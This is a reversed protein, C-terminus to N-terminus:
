KTKSKTKARRSVVKSRSKKSKETKENLKDEEELEDLSHLILAEPDIHDLKQATIMDFQDSNFHVLRGEVKMASFLDRNRRNNERYLEKRMEDDEFYFDKGDKKFSTVVTEANFRNLFEKEKDNLPRIVLEGKADKVGNIYEESEIFDQRIKTNFRKKLAPYKEKERRNNPKKNNTPM